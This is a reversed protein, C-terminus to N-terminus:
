CYAVPEPLSHIIKDPHTTTDVPIASHQFDNWISFIELRQPAAVDL